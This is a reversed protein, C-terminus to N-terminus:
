PTPFSQSSVGGVRTLLRLTYGEVGDYIRLQNWLGLEKLKPDKPWANMPWKYRTEVVDVFGAREIREKSEAWINFSKGSREGLKSVVDGWARFFKDATLTGDDYYSTVSHEALEVYGGPKTASFTQTLYYDWDPISGFMERIHILDFYNHPYTWEETVDVVEFICNPPVLAPQIPSLDNGM